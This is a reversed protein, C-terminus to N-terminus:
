GAKVSIKRTKANKAKPLHLRLVGDKVVAKIKDQDVEDSLRFGRQYDGIAYEAINLTYGEPQEYDVNANITLVNKELMIDISDANAGPVDLVLVIEDDTEYIDTQPVFVPIDRTRETDDVTAVEQKEAEMTANKEIM